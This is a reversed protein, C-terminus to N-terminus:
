VKYARLTEYAIIVPSAGAAQNNPYAPGQYFGNEMPWIASQVLSQTDYSYVSIGSVTTSAILGYQGNGLVVETTNSADAFGHSVKFPNSATADTSQCALEFSNPRFGLSTQAILNYSGGPPSASIQLNNTLLHFSAQHNPDFYMSTASTVKGIHKGFLTKFISYRGNTAAVSDWAAVSYGVPSTSTTAISFRPTFGTYTWTGTNTQNLYTLTSAANVSFYNSGNVAGADLTVWVYAGAPVKFGSFTFALDQYVGSMLSKSITTSGLFLGALDNGGNYFCYPKTSSGLWFRIKLDNPPAGAGNKVAITGTGALVCEGGSSNNIPFASFALSASQSIAVDSGGTLNQFTPAINPFSQGTIDGKLLIHKSQGATGAELALGLYTQAQAITNTYKWWKGDAPNLYLLIANNTIDAASVTEGLTGITMEGGGPYNGFGLAYTLAAYGNVATNIQSATVSVDSILSALPGNVTIKLQENAGPNVTSMTVGSNGVIKNTLTSPTTDSGSNVVLNSASVSDITNWSLGDNTYEAKSTGSNWRVLGVYTGVGTSRSITVTGSADTGIIFSSGGTAIGGQLAARLLEGVQAAIVCTVSSGGDLAYIFSNNGATYDLGRPNIGRVVGTAGYGDANVAGAPVWIVETQGLKNTVSMLFAGTILAGTEDTPRVSWKLNTDTNLAANGSTLVPLGAWEFFYLSTSTPLKTANSM